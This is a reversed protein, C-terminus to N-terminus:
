AGAADSCCNHSSDDTVVLELKGGSGNNRVLVLLSVSAVALKHGTCGTSKLFGPVTAEEDVPSKGCQTETLLLRSREQM